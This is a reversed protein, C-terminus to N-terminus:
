RSTCHAQKRGHGSRGPLLEPLKLLVRPGQRFGRPVRRAPRSWLLRAVKGVPISSSATSHAARRGSPGLAGALSFGARPSCQSPEGLVDRFLVLPSQCAGARRMTNATATSPAPQTAWRTALLRTAARPAGNWAAPSRDAGLLPPRWSECCANGQRQRLPTRRATRSPRMRCRRGSQRPRGKVGQLTAARRHVRGPRCCDARQVAGHPGVHAPRDRGAPRCALRNAPCLPPAHARRGDQM